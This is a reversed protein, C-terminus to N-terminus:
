DILFIVEIDEGSVNAFVTPTLKAHHLLESFHHGLNVGPSNQQHPYRPFNIAPNAVWDISERLTPRLPLKESVGDVPPLMALSVHYSEVTVTERVDLKFRGDSSLFSTLKQLRTDAVEFGEKILANPGHENMQTLRALVLEVVSNVLKIGQKVEPSVRKEHDIIRSFDEAFKSM